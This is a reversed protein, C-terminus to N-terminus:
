RGHMTPSTRVDCPCLPNGYPCTNWPGMGSFPPQDPDTPGPPADDDHDMVGQEGSM